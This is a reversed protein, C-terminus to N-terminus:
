DNFMLPELLLLKEYEFMEDLTFLMLDILQFLEGEIGVELYIKVIIELNM